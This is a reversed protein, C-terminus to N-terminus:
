QRLEFWYTQIDTKPDDYVRCPATRFDACDGGHEVVLSNGNGFCDPIYHITTMSLDTVEEDLVVAALWSWLSDHCQLREEHTQVM